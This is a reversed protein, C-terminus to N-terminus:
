VHQAAERGVPDVDVQHAVDEDVGAGAQGPPPDDALDLAALDGGVREGMGVGVVLARALSTQSRSPMSQTRRAPRPRSPSRCSRATLCGSLLTIARAQAPGAMRDRPPQALAVLDGAELDEVHRPVRGAM